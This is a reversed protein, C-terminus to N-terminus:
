SWKERWEQYATEQETGWEPKSRMTELQRQMEERYYDAEEDMGRRLLERILHSNSKLMDPLIQFDTVSRITSGDRWKWLYFPTECYKIDKAVNLCISNFYSDEAITLERDWRIQNDILWKRNYVKGHVFTGDKPHNVYIPIDGVRTEEAFNSVLMEFPMMQYITYLGICSLFMDDSDCWMVYDATSHDVAYQRAASLGGHEMRLYEVPFDYSKLLGDSLLVDSGDNVIIVGFDANQQLALSDLLPKVVKNPEHYHPILIQIM